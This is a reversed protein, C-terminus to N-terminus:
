SGTPASIGISVNSYGGTNAADRGLAFTGDTNINLLDYTDGSDRFQVTDTILAKRTTGITGDSTYLTSIAGAGSTLWGVLDTKSYQNNTNAVSEYGVVFTTADVPAVGTTFQSFKTAM